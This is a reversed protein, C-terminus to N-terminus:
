PKPVSKAAARTRADLERADKRLRDMEEPRSTAYLGRVDADPGILLFWTPHVINFGAEGNAYTFARTRDEELLFKLGDTVIARVTKDSGDKDTLFSWRLVDADHLKAYERLAEPTDHKPDISMSVFRVGTGSLSKCVGAMQETMMPCATPCHIFIFDLVTVKGLLDAQTFARGDQDVMAFEPIVLSRLGEAAQQALAEDGKERSLRVSRVVGVLAAASGIFLVALALIM